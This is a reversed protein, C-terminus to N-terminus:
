LILINDELLQGIDETSKMAHGKVETGKKYEIIGFNAKRWADEITQINLENKLEEKAEVCIAM